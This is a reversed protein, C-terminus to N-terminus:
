KAEKAAKKRQKELKRLERKSLSLEDITVDEAMKDAYEQELEEITELVDDSEKDFFLEKFRNLLEPTHDIFEAIQELTGPAEQVLPMMEVKGSPSVILFGIPNVTVGTGGGGGFTNGRNAKSPLDLGGSVFGISVKSIPIIVTGTSTVIEKGVVTDADIITRVQELSSNIIDKISSNNAM